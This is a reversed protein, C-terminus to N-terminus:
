NKTRACRFGILDDRSFPDYWGRFACRANFQDFYWAGGRIVPLQRDKEEIKNVFQDLQM